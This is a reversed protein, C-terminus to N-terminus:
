ILTTLTATLSTQRPSSEQSLVTTLHQLIQENKTTIICKGQEGFGSRWNRVMELDLRAAEVIKGGSPRLLCSYEKFIRGFSFQEGESVACDSEDWGNACDM